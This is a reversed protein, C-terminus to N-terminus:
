QAPRGDEAAECALVDLVRDAAEGLLDSVESRDDGDETLQYPSEASGSGSLSPACRCLLGSMSEVQFMM